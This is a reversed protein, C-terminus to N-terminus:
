SHLPQVDRAYVLATREAGTKIRFAVSVRSRGVQTVTAEREHGQVKATVRMGVRLAKIAQHSEQVRERRWQAAEALWAEQSANVDRALEEEEARRAIQKACEYGLWGFRAAIAECAERHMEQTQNEDYNTFEHRLMNVVLRDMPSDGPVFGTWLSRELDHDIAVRELKERYWNPFNTKLPSRTV